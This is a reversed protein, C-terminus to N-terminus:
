CCSDEIHLKAACVPCVQGVGQIYHDRKDIPNSRKFATPLKCMVCHEVESAVTNRRMGSLPIIMSIRVMAFEGM